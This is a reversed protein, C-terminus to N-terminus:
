WVIEQKKTNQKNQQSYYIHDFAQCGGKETWGETEVEASAAM